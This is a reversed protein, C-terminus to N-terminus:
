LAKMWSFTTRRKRSRKARVSEQKKLLRELAQEFLAQNAFSVDHKLLWTDFLTRYYQLLEDLPLPLSLQNLKEINKMHRELEEPRDDPIFPLLALHIIGKRLGQWSAEEEVNMEQLFRKEIPYIVEDVLSELRKHDFKM